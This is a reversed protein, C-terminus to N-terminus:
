ANWVKYMVYVTIIFLIVYIVDNLTYLPMIPFVDISKPELIHTLYIANTVASEFSTFKYHSKMNHTGVNYLNKFMSSTFPLGDYEKNTFIFATDSSIWRNSKTDRSITPSLISYTPKPLIGNYAENLQRFTESLLHEIIDTNNATKGTIQSINDTLTIACSIVTNSRNDHFNMYDSLVIFAVGWDSTPFGYITPLNITVDSNWHFTIAIDTIYNTENVWERFPTIRWATFGDGIYEKIPINFANPIIKAIDFPPIALIYNKATLIEGKETVVNTIASGSTITSTTVNVKTITTSLMFDVGIMKSIMKPFLGIDNPEKPQYLTYLSQQNILQLFENLTYRDSGAGDTLRCLRDMYNMADNSFINSKGFELVSIDLGYSSSLLMKICALSICAMESVTFHQSANGGISSINFNYPTFLDYFDLGMDGLLAITNKYSSSYIRPSHETFLGGPKDTRIVRHCGGITPAKDVVLCRYNLKNLIYALTIGSPGAGVILYDYFM